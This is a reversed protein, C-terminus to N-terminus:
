TNYKIETYEKRLSDLEEKKFVRHTSLARSIKEPFKKEEISFKNKIQKRSKDTFIKELLTFDTGCLSLGKYFLITEEKSWRSKSTARGYSFATMRDEIVNREENEKPGGSSIVVEGDVIILSDKVESEKEEKKKRQYRKSAAFNRNELFHALTQKENMKMKMKIQM